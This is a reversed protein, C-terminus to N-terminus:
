PPKMPERVLAAKVEPLALVESGCLTGPPSLSIAQRSKPGTQTQAMNGYVEFHAVTEKLTRVVVTTM